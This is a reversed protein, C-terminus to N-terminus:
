NYNLLWDLLFTHVNNSYIKFVHCFDNALPMEEYTKIYNEVAALNIYKRDVM